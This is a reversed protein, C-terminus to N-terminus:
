VRVGRGSLTEVQPLASLAAWVEDDTLSVGNFVYSGVGTRTVSAGRSQALRRIGREDIETIDLFAEM